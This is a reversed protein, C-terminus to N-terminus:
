EPLFCPPTHRETAALGSCAFAKPQRQFLAPGLCREPEPEAELDLQAAVVEPVPAEPRDPPAEPDFDPAEAPRSCHRSHPDAATSAAKRPVAADAPRGSQATDRRRPPVSKPPQRRDWVSRQLGDTGGVSDRGSPVLAPRRLRGAPNPDWRSLERDTGKRPPWCPGPNTTSAPVPRRWSCGTPRRSPPLEATAGYPKRRPCDASLAAPARRRVPDPHPCEALQGPHPTHASKYDPTRIRIDRLGTAPIRDTTPLQIQRATQKTRSRIESRAMRRIRNPIAHIPCRSPTRRHFKRRRVDRHM